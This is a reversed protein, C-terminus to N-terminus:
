GFATDNLHIFICSGWKIIFHLDIGDERKGYLGYPHHLFVLPSIELGLRPGFFYLAKFAALTVIIFRDPDGPCSFHGVTFDDQNM